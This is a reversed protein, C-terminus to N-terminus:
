KLGHSSSSESRVDNLAALRDRDYITIRPSFSPNDRFKLLTWFMSSWSRGSRPPM